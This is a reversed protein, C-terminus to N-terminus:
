TLREVEILTQQTTANASGSNGAKNATATATARGAVFLSGAEPVVVVLTATVTGPTLPLDDFRIHPEPTQDAEDGSTFTAVSMTYADAAGSGQRVEDADADVYTFIVEYTGASVAVNRNVGATAGASSASGPLQLGLLKPGNGGTASASAVLAGTTSNATAATSVTGSGKISSTFTEPAGGSSASAPQAAFLLLAAGVAGASLYRRHRAKSTSSKM